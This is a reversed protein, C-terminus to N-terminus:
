KYIMLFVLTIGLLAFIASNTTSGKAAAAAAADVQEKTPVPALGAGASADRATIPNLKIGFLNTNIISM